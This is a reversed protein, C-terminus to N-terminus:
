GILQDVPAVIETGNILAQIVADNDFDKFQLVQMEEFREALWGDLLGIKKMNPVIQSFLLATFTHAEDSTRMTEKVVDGDLGMREFAERSFLRGRMLMCAEYVFEQRERREKENMQSYYDFLSIVGFAVHRAEDRLVLRILERLLPEKTRHLLTTFATIALGEVILQMGLFKFDWRSEATIAQLLNFLNQTCPYTFDLKEAAYRSFVEVHRAEDFAQSSAYFKSDMDPVATILQSAAFLAGQEGHIFQSVQNTNYEVIVRQKEKRSLKRYWDANEWMPDVGFVEAELDVDSSWPLDEAAWQLEKARSYLQHLKDSTVGYEWNFMALEQTQVDQNADVIGGLRVETGTRKLIKSLFPYMEEVNM